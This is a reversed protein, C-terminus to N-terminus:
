KTNFRDCSEPYLVRLKKPLKSIIIDYSEVILSEVLDSDFDGTLDITIWHEKNLHYGCDIYDYSQRLFYNKDPSNKLSVYSNGQDTLMFMKGEIKYVKTFEDFPYTLESNTLENVISDINM